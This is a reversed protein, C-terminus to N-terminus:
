IIQRIDSLGVSRGNSLNLTAGQAGTSVSGVVAFALAGATVPVGGRVATVEFTYAGDPAQGGDMTQGDWMLPQAGAPQAGLSINQVVQGDANRITVQVDDAAEGLEVGFLAKSEQLEMGAGPVLLGRGILTAAQLSQNAQQSSMMAALTSNLKEIGTVTSLQAMQSTVQANDLPNLPDQNKMQAVLLKLFRDETAAIGGANATSSAPNMAALLDPSVTTNQVTNM